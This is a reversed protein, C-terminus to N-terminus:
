CIQRTDVVPAGRKGRKLNAQFEEACLFQTLWAKVERSTSEPNACVNGRLRAECFLPIAYVVNSVCQVYQARHKKVCAHEKLNDGNVKECLRGLKRPASFFLM